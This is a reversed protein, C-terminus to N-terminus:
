GVLFKAVKPGNKINRVDHKKVLQAARAKPLRSLGEADGRLDSWIM